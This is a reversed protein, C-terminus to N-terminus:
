EKRTILKKIRRSVRICERIIILLLLVCIAILITAIVCGAIFLLTLITSIM